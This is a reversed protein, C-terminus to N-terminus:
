DHKKDLMKKLEAIQEPSIQEHKAFHVLMQGIDGGFVKDVFSRGEERTCRDQGIKSRYLNRGKGPEVQLAGKDVLRSLLTRVTRHSWATEPLVAEIVEAAGVPENQWITRMILWESDSIKM